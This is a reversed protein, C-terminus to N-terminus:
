SLDMFGFFFKMGKEKEMKKKQQDVSFKQMYLKARNQEVVKVKGADTVYLQKARMREFPLINYYAEQEPYDCIKKATAYAGTRNWLVSIEHLLGVDEPSLYGNLVCQWLKKEYEQWTCTNHVFIAFAANNWLSYETRNALEDQAVGGFMESFAADDFLNKRNYRKVFDDYGKDTTIGLLKESPFVGKTLYVSDVYRTFYAEHAIRKQIIDNDRNAVRGLSDSTYCLLMVRDAAATDIVYANGNAEYCRVVSPYIKEDSLTARLVPAAPYASLPMGNKFALSLYHFFHNTDGTCYAIQAAVYCDKVFPRNYSKFAKDYLSFSQKVDGNAVFAEEAENVSKYYDKFDKSYGKNIGPSIMLMLLLAVGRM